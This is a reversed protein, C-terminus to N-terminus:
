VVANCVPKGTARDWLVVTERQNAIGICFIEEPRIGNDKLADKLAGLQSELIEAPDHEVWGPHPFIQKFPRSSIGWVKGQRDFVVARSSTTGQDLSVIYKKEM